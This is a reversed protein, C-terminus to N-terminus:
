QPGMQLSQCPSTCTTVSTMHLCAWLPLRRTRERSSFPPTCSSAWQLESFAHLPSHKSCLYASPCRGPSQAVLCLHAPLCPPAVFCPARCLHELHALCQWAACVSPRTHWLSRLMADDQSHLAHLEAATASPQAPHAHSILSWAHMLAQGRKRVPCASNRVPCTCTLQLLVPLLDSIQIM